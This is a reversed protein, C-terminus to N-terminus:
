FTGSIGELSNWFSNRSHIVAAILMEKEISAGVALPKQFGPCFDAGQDDPLIQEQMRRSDKREISQHEWLYHCGCYGPSQTDREQTRHEGHGIHLLLGTGQAFRHGHRMNM